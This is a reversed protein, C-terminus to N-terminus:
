SRSIDTLAKSLADIQASSTFVNPTVRVCPGQALGARHVTFIGHRELLVQALKANASEGRHNRLRFSTIGGVSQPEAPTLIEVNENHRLPESWRDRLYRLRGIKSQPGVARHFALADELALLSAFNSTGTHVRDRIDPHATYDHAGMFEEIDGIRSRRVWMVGVGLPAGIWKHANLGVFDVGLSVLNFSIQGWAHASDLIVDVNRARALAAIEAVPMVMGTRHSLHTLLLLRIKPNAQLARSYAELMSERTAPEPLDIRDVTVGRRQALWRMASQMADYDLDAYLVSDGPRLARYGGILAQLAETAGRTFVIEEPLVGLESAVLERIRAADGAFERRAYWAGLRNVRETHRVYAAMVQRAVAGFNGYELNIFAKSIDYQAAVGRWYSEDQPNAADGRLPSMGGFSVGSAAGALLGGAILERRTTDPM